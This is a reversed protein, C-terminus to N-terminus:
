PRRAKKFPDDKGWPDKTGRPPQHTIKRTKCDSCIDAIPNDRHHGSAGLCSTGFRPCNEFKDFGRHGCQFLFDHQVCM